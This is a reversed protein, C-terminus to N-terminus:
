SLDLLKTWHLTLGCPRYIRSLHRCVQYSDHLTYSRQLSEFYSFLFDPVLDCSFVLIEM